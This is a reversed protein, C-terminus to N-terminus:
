YFFLSKEFQQKIILFALSALWFIKWFFEFKVGMQM